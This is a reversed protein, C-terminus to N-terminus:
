GREGPRGPPRRRTGCRPLSDKEPGRGDSYADGNTIVCPGAASLVTGSPSQWRSGTVMIAPGTRSLAKLMLTSAKARASDYSQRAESNANSSTFLAVDIAADPRSIRGHQVV